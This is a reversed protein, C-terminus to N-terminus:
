VGECIYYPLLAIFFILVLFSPVAFGRDFHLIQGSLGATGALQSGSSQSKMLGLQFAVIEAVEGLGQVAPVFPSEIVEIDREFHEFVVELYLRRGVRFEFLPSDDEGAVFSINSLFSQQDINVLSQQMALLFGSPAIVQLQWNLDLVPGRGVGIYCDSGVGYSKQLSHAFYVFYHSKSCTVLGVCVHHQVLDVRLSLVYLVSKVALVADLDM